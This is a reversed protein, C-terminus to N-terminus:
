GEQTSPPANPSPYLCPEPTISLHMTSNFYSFPLPHPRQYVGLLQVITPIVMPFPILSPPPIPINPTSSQFLSFQPHSFPLPSCQSPKPSTTIHMFYNILSIPPLHPHRYMEIPQVIPPLVRSSSIPITIAPATNGISSRKETVQEDFLRIQCTPVNHYTPGEVTVIFFNLYNHM